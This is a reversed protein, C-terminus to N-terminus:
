TKLKKAVNKRARSSVSKFFYIFCRSNIQNMIKQFKHKIMMLFKLTLFLYIRSHFFRNFNNNKNM